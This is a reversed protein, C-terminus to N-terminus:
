RAEPTIASGFTFYMGSLLKAKPQVFLIRQTGIQDAPGEIVKWKDSMYFSEKRGFELDAPTLITELILGGQPYSLRASLPEQYAPEVQIDLMFPEYEPDMEEAETLIVEGEKIFIIPTDSDVMLVDGQNACTIFAQGVDINKRQSQFMRNADEPDDLSISTIKVEENPAFFTIGPNRQSREKESQM